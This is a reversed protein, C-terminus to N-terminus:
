RAPVGQIRRETVIIRQRTSVALQGLRRGAQAYSVFTGDAHRPQFHSHHAGFPPRHFM